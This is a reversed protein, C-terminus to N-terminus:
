ALVDGVDAAELERKQCKLFGGRPARRLGDVPQRGFLAKKDGEGLNPPDLDPVLLFAYQRDRIRM